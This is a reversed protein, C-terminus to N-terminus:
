SVDALRVGLVRFVLWVAIEVGGLEVLVLPGGDGQRNWM